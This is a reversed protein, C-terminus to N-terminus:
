HYFISIIYTQRVHTDYHAVYKQVIYNLKPIYISVKRDFAYNKIWEYLELYIHARYQFLNYVPERYDVTQPFQANQSSIAM